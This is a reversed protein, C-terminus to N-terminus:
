VTEAIWYEVKNSMKINGSTILWIQAEGKEQIQVFSYLCFLEDCDCPIDMYVENAKITATHLKDVLGLGKGSGWGILAKRVFQSM